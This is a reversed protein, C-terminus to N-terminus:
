EFAPSDMKEGRAVAMVMQAYADLCHEIQERSCTSMSGTTPKRGSQSVHLYRRM